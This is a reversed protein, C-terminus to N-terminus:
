RKRGRPGLGVLEEYIARRTREAAALSHRARALDRAARGLRAATKPDGMLDLIARAAARVDRAPVLRGTEGDRILEGHWEIDYAVVPCGAACAEILTYGGMTCLSVDAHVFIRAVDAKPRSGLFRVSRGLGEDQVRRALRQEEPGAGVVLFVADRREELVQRAIDITDEVYREPSLRGVAAVIFSEPPLGYERRFAGSDRAQDLPVLDVGHPMVRIQDERAGQSLLYRKLHERIPLLMPTRRILWREQAKALARVGLYAPAGRRGTHRYTMDYDQHVSLCFPVGTCRSALWSALGCEYLDRGHILKVGYTRHLEAIRAAVRVLHWLRMRGLPVAMEIATVRDSLEYVRQAPAEYHIRVTHEFLDGIHDLLMPRVTGYTQRMIEVPAVHSVFVARRGRPTRRSLALLRILAASALWVDVAVRALRLLRRM